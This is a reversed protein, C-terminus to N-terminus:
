TRKKKFSYKRQNVLGPPLPKHDYVPDQTIAAYLADLYEEQVMVGEANRQEDLERAEKSLGKKAYICMMLTWLPPTDKTYGKDRAKDFTVKSLELCTDPDTDFHTLYLKLVVTYCRPTLPLGKEAMEKLVEACGQFDGAKAKVTLRTEHKRAEQLVKKEKHDTEQNIEPQPLSPQPPPTVVDQRQIKVRPDEEFPTPKHWRRQVVCRRTVDRWVYGVSRQLM